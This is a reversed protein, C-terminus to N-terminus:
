SLAGLSQAEFGKRDKLRNLGRLEYIILTRELVYLLLSLRESGEPVQAKFNEAMWQRYFDMSKKVLQPPGKVIGKLYLWFMFRALKHARIYRRSFDWIDVLVLGRVNGEWDIIVMQKEDVLINGAHLDHHIHAHLVEYQPFKQAETKILNLLKELQRKSPHNQIRMQAREIWRSVPTVEYPHAKYFETMAPMIMQPFQELLFREPFPRNKISLTNSCFNSVFWRAGNSTTGEALLQVSYPAFSTQMISKLTEIEKELLEVSQPNFFLKLVIQKEHSAVIVGEKDDKFFIISDKPLPVQWKKGVFKPWDLRALNGSYHKLRGTCSKGFVKEIHDFSDKAVGVRYFPHFAFTTPGATPDYEQALECLAKELCSIWQPATM